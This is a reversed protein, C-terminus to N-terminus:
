LEKTIINKTTVPVHKDFRQRAINMNTVTLLTKCIFDHIKIRRHLIQKFYKESPYISLSDCAFALFFAQMDGHVLHGGNNDTGV